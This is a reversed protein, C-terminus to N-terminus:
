SSANYLRLLTYSDGSDASASAKARLHAVASM